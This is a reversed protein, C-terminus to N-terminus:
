TFQTTKGVEVVEKIIRVEPVIKHKNCVECSTPILLKVRNLRAGCYPCTILEFPASNDKFRYIIEDKM